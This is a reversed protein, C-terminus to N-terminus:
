SAFMRTSDSPVNYCFTEENPDYGTIDDPTNVKYFCDINQETFVKEWEETGDPIPVAEGSNVNTGCMSSTTLTLRIDEVYICPRSYNKKM